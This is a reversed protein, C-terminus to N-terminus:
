AIRITNQQNTVAHLVSLAALYSTKPNAPMPDNEIITTMKGFTGDAEITHTNKEAYPDALVRVKTRETGVGALSLAIAVNMNRPFQAIAEEASGEFIVEVETLSTARKPLASPPKRTTLQVSKLENLAQASQIADLGGIAGSPIFLATGYQRALTEFSERVERKGLVGISSLILSKGARIVAEGYQEITEITSTEVVYDFPQQVFREINHVVEIGKRALTEVQDTRSTLVHTVRIDEREQLAEVLFSGINGYGILGIKMNNVREERRDYRMKMM